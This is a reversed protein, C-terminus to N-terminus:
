EWIELQVSFVNKKSTVELRHKEPFTIELRKKLNSLGIGSPENRTAKKEEQFSNESRFIIKGASSEYKLNFHIYGNKNEEWDGHKFANEVMALLLLPPIVLNSINEPYSFEVKVIRDTKLRYLEMFSELFDIEKQFSVFAQNSEELLYRMLGSLKMVTPAARDDKLYCLTYLNNLVNFLFHPHVQYRLMQLEAKMKEQQLQTQRKISKGRETTLFFIMSLLFSLGLGVIRIVWEFWGQIKGTVMIPLSTDNPFVLNEIQIRLFAFLLISSVVALWFFFHKNKQYFAPIWLLLNLYFIGTIGWSSVIIKLIATPWPYFQLLYTFLIAGISVWVIAHLGISRVWKNNGM